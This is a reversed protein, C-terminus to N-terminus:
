RAAEIALGSPSLFADLPKGPLARLGSVLARANFEAGAFTTHTRADAFFTEIEAAALRDYGRSILECLDLYYANEARACAEVWGRWEQWGRVFRGNEDFKKHPIPSCLVVNAGKERATRAFTKLYWGYSHVIERTGDERTVTETEDGISKVSGRFKSRADLHGVDNHGFQIVVWDGVKIEDLIKQWRGETFFTRSSRGGIARNVLNIKSPDFFAGLEQGWGRMPREGSAGGINVTSDGALWLTPLTGDAPISPTAGSDNVVPRDDEATPDAAASLPLVLGAWLLLHFLLRPIMIM